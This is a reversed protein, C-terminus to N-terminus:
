PVLAAATHSRQSSEEGSAPRDYRAHDLERAWRSRQDVRVTAAVPAVMAAKTHKNRQARARGGRRVGGFGAAAPASGRGGAAVVAASPTQLEHTHDVASTHDTQQHSLALEWAPARCPM